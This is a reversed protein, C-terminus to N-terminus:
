LMSECASLTTATTEAGPGTGVSTSAKVVISYLIFEELGELLVEVYPTTLNRAVGGSSNSSYFVTYNRLIGNREASIPAAWALRLSTSSRDIVRLNVPAGSPAIAPSVIFICMIPTVLPM